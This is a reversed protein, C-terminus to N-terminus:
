LGGNAGAAPGPSRWRWHRRCPCLMLLLRLSPHLRLALITQTCACATCPHNPYMCACHLACHVSPKPVHLRMAPLSSPANRHDECGVMPALPQDLAAGSGDACPCLMLSLRLVPRMGITKVVWWQRWRSTWPQAVLTTQLPLADVIAQTCLAAMIAAIHEPLAIIDLHMCAILRTCWCSTWLQVM